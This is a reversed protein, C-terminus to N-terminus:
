RHYIVDYRFDLLPADLIARGVDVIDLDEKQLDALDSLQVGGGYALKVKDRLGSQTLSLSCKRLDEISGTDVMVVSAGSRAALAAEKGIEATEGLLQVVVSREPFIRAADIESELSGFMRLYNKDLYVFPQPLMRIGAGGAILGKRVYEKLERPVKKWGGSVVQVKGALIVAQRAATAIGSVKSIVGLLCDEGRIIQLPDGELSAVESGPSVNTGTPNYVHAVLGLAAAQAEMEDMGAVVGASTSVIVARVKRDMIGQLLLAPVDPLIDHHKKM